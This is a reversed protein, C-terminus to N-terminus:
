RTTCISGGRRVQEAPRHRPLANTLPDGERSRGFEEEAREHRGRGAGQRGRGVAGAAAQNLLESLPLLKRRLTAVM